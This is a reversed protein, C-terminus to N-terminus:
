KNGGIIHLVEAMDNSANVKILEISAPNLESNSMLRFTITALVQDNGARIEGIQDSNSGASDHDFYSVSCTIQGPVSTDCLRSGGATGVAFRPDSFIAPDYRVTFGYGSEDGLADVLISV